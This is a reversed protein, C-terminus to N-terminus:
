KPNHVPTASGPQDGALRIPQALTCPSGFLFLPVAAPPVDLTFLISQGCCGLWDAHIGSGSHSPLLSAPRHEAVIM